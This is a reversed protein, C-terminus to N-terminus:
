QKGRVLKRAERAGSEVERHNIKAIKTVPSMRGISGLVARAEAAGRAQATTRTSQLLRAAYAASNRFRREIRSLPKNTAGAKRIQAGPDAPIPVASVELPEWDRIEFVDPCDAGGEQRTSAHVLYGVSINRIIGDRIKGITDSDSAASSLKITALGKGDEVRASGPVVSGIVNALSDSSHTDLLPAGNNLRDLRVNGAGMLLREVYLGKWDEWLVDAGTSWMIDVTDDKEDYSASRVHAASYNKTKM